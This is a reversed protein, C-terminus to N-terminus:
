RGDKETKLRILGKIDKIVTSIINVKSDRDDVWRVPVECISLNNKQARFLIETDFFWGIDKCKDIIQIVSEKKAFKFGCQADKFKVSLVSRFIFSYSRSIVERKLSRGVVISDRMLRSAIVFDEEEEEIKRIFEPLIDLDTSLDLDMYGLIGSTSSIWANKLALGKGAIPNSIVRSKKYRNHLNKAIQLTSDSSGNEAITIIWENTINLSLFEYLTKFKSELVKSENYVPLVIDISRNM